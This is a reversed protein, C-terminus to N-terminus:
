INVLIHPQHIIIITLSIKTKLEALRKVPRIRGDGKRLKEGQIEYAIRAKNYSKLNFAIMMAAFAKGRHKKVRIINHYKVTTAGFILEVMGRFQKRLKNDYDKRAKKRYRGKERGEHKCVMPITKLQEYCIKFIEEVDYQADGFFALIEGESLVQLMEKAAPSDGANSKTTKNTKITVLGSNPRYKMIIHTKITEKKKIEKLVRKAAKYTGTSYETSDALGVSNNDYQDVKEDLLKSVELLWNLPIRDIYHPVTSHEILNGSLFESDNALERQTCSYYMYFLVIVGEECSSLKHKRGRKPQEYPEGVEYAIELMQKFISFKNIKNVKEYIPWFGPRKNM